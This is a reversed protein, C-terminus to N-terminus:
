VNKIFKRSFLPVEAPPNWGGRYRSIYPRWTRARGDAVGGCWARFSLLYRLVDRGFWGKQGGRQGGDDESAIGERPASDKDSLCCPRRLPASLFRAVTPCPARPPFIEGFDPGPM